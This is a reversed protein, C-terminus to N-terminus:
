YYITENVNCLPIISQFARVLKAVTGLINIEETKTTFKQRFNNSTTRALFIPSPKKKVVAYTAKHMIKSVGQTALHANTMHCM